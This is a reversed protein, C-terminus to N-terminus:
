YDESVTVSNKMKPVLCVFRVSTTSVSKKTLFWAAKTGFHHRKDERPRLHVM